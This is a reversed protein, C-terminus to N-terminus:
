EDISNPGESADLDDESYITLGNIGTELMRSAITAFALVDKRRVILSEARRSAIWDLIDNEHELLIPPKGGGPLRTKRTSVLRELEEAAVKWKYIMRESLSYKKAVAINSDTLCEELIKRKFQISYSKRRATMATLFQVLYFFLMGKLQISDKILRFIKLDCYFVHMDEIQPIVKILFIM